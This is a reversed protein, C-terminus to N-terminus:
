FPSKYCSHCCCFLLLSECSALVVGIVYILGGKRKQHILHCLQVRPEAALQKPHAHLQGHHAM